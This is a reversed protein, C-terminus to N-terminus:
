GATSSAMAISRLLADTIEEEMDQASEKFGNGKMIQVLEVLSKMTINIVTNKTGGTAISENTKAGTSSGKKNPNLKNQLTTIEHRTQKYKDSGITMNGLSEELEKIRERIQNETDLSIKKIISKDVVNNVKDPTEEIIKQVTKKKEGDTVLDLKERLAKIKEFGDGALKSLGPIKSLMKLLQQVPKLVVDLLVIGIRKLGGLIGDSKFANVISDWHSKLTMIINIVLGFPGLLFSVAAGWEDFHKIVEVTLTILAVIAIVFWTIPNALLAATNAWIATTMAWQAVAVAIIGVALVGLVAAFPKLIPGAKEGIWSIFTMLKSAIPLFISGINVMMNDLQGKLGELQGYPTNAVNQLMNEFKGGPGTALDMAKRVEDVGIAGESMRKTLSEMSEGTKESLVQLPNFGANILQLLEQGALKGKGNIQAFALSLSGLKDADGMSIDGLQEMVPMVDSEKIGNALMQNAMDYVENGFVTDTAFKNLGDYLAGGIEKSGTLTQMKMKEKGADMAMQATKWFGGIAAGAMSLPNKILDAGPLSNAFDKRWGAIKNGIGGGGIGQQLRKIRIELKEAEEAYFSLANKDHTKTMALNVDKLKKELEEISSDLRRTGAITTTIKGIFSSFSASASKAMSQAKESVEDVKDVIKGVREAIKDSVASMKDRLSLIYELTNAM